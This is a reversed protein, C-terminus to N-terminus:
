KYEERTPHFVDIVHCSTMAKASHIAHPPIIAASGAELQYTEGGITLEFKGAILKTIQEHPHSHEPLPTGAEFRWEALTMSKSHVFNVLAGKLLKQNVLNEAPIIKAQNDM